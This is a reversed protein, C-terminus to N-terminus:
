HVPKDKLFEGLWGGGGEKPCSCSKINLNQGCIPCLGKCEERCHPAMPIATLIAERIALKLDIGTDQFYTRDLDPRELRVQHSSEYPDRGLIFERYFADDIVKEFREGCCSCTLTATFSVRGKIIIIDGKTVKLKMRGDRVLLDDLGLLESDFGEDIETIADLEEM